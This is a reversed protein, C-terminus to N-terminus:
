GARKESKLLRNLGETLAYRKELALHQHLNELATRSGVVVRLARLPTDPHRVLVSQVHCLTTVWFSPSPVKEDLTGVSAM